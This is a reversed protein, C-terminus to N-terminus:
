QASEAPGQSTKSDEAPNIKRTLEDYEKRRIMELDNEIATQVLKLGAFDLENKIIKLFIEIRTVFFLFGFFWLASYVIWDFKSTVIPYLFAVIISVVLFPMNIKGQRRLGMREASILEISNDVGIKATRLEEKTNNKVEEM